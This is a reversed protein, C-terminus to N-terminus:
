AGAEKMQELRVLATADAPLLVHAEFREGTWTPRQEVARMTLREDDWTRGDDIRDVVVRKPGPTLGDWKVRVVRDAVAQLSYNVLLAGVAGGARGALVRVDQHDTTAAVREEGLRRLMEYAFYAPRVKGEVGFLGFRHPIENWHRGMIERPRAFFPAFDAPDCVQDWLHYHFSWDVGADMMALVTAAVCAARRPEFAQDETSAREFGPSFETVMVEPTAGPYDAVLERAQQADRAHAAPDDHYLHHSVFDLQTGHEGCLRVFGPLPENNVGANAPGGVKAQPFSALIPQITMRYYDFYDQPDRILYPCGGHEGIDVENGVEWHTVIRRDVSYRQVMAAIVAQWQEVDTPRWVREDIAPYLPRPKICIAAVVTAGTAALADMYPDLRSWDFRGAEPYVDFFEQIFVRVLRPELRAIGQQVRAPLPSPNVGGHGFSHRWTELPGRAASADVKVLTQPLDAIRQTM